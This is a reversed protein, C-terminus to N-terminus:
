ARAGHSAPSAVVHSGLTAWPNPAVLREGPAREANVYNIKGEKPWSTFSAAGTSNPSQSALTADNHLGRMDAVEGGGKSTARSGQAHVYCGGSWGRTARRQAGRQKQGRAFALVGRSPTGRLVSCSSLM